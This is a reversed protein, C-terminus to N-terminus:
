SAIIKCGLSENEYSWSLIPLGITTTFVTGFGNTEKPRFLRLIWAWIFILHVNYELGVFYQKDKSLNAHQSDKENKAEHYEKHLQQHLKLKSSLRYVSPKCVL